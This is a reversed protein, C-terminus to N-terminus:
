FITADLKSVLKSIISLPSPAYRGIVRGWDSTGLVVV